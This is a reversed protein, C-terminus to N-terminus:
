RRSNVRGELREVPSFTANGLEALRRVSALPKDWRHFVPPRATADRGALLLAMFAGIGKSAM